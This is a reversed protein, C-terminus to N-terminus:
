ACVKRGPTSLSAQEPGTRYDRSDDEGQLKEAIGPSGPGPVDQYLAPSPWGTFRVEKVGLALHLCEEQPM